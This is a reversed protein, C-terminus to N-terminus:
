LGNSICGSEQIAEVPKLADVQERLLEILQGLLPAPELHSWPALIAAGAELEAHIKGVVEAFVGRTHM